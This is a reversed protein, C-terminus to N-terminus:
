HYTTAALESWRPQNRLERFWWEDDFSTGQNAAANQKLLEIAEDYDGALTRLHAEVKLLQRPPDVHPTARARARTWVARASDALGARALVGGVWLQGEIRDNESQYEPALHELRSLVNWARDVDAAEMPTAMLKLECMAFRHSAPFRRAGIECWRRAETFQELNYAASFIRDVVLDANELYADEEYARRSSIMAATLDRRLHLHGLTAHASALSPDLEVARELDTQAEMLVRALRERDHDVEILRYLYKLTGRVELARAHNPQMALARDIHALGENILEASEHYRGAIGEIRARRYAIHGRLVPPDVWEPDLLAAQALLTDAEEFVAAAMTADHGHAAQEEARKRAQEGRQYLAWAAASASSLRTSRLRVERGLWDRLLRSAHEVLDEQARQLEAVPLTFATRNFEQGSQGDLLRLSFRLDGEVQEVTGHVLTGAKLTRGISDPSVEASRFQAVGNRSIVDFERVAALEDILAETFGDALHTTAGGATLDDFYLVAIRNLNLGALAASARQRAELESAVPGSSAGIGLLALLLLLAIEAKPARQAGKEGHFWGITLAAPIGCLYWILSVQYVLRPLIRQNTLQDVVELGIWGAALYAVTIRFLRRQKLEQWFKM